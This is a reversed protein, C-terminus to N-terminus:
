FDNKSKDIFGSSLISNYKYNQFDLDVEFNQNYKEEQELNNEQHLTIRRDLPQQFHSTQDLDRTYTKLSLTKHTSPVLDKKAEYCTVGNGNALIDCPSRDQLTNHLRM